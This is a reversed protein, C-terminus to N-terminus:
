PGHHNLNSESRFPSEPGMDLFQRSRGQQRHSHEHSDGLGAFESSALARTRSDNFTNYEGV